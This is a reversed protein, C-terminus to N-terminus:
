AKLTKFGRDQKCIYKNTIHISLAGKAPFFTHFSIIGKGCKTQIQDISWCCAMELGKYRSSCPGDVAFSKRAWKSTTHWQCSKKRWFQVIFVRNRKMQLVKSDKDLVQHIM